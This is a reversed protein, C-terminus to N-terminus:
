EGADYGSCSSGDGVGGVFIACDELSAEGGQCRIDSAQFPLAGSTGPGAPTQWGWSGTFSMAGMWPFGLQRCVVQANPISWYTHGVGLWQGCIAGWGGRSGQQIYIEVFGYAGWTNNGGTLRLSGSPIQPQPPTSPTNAPSPSPLTNSAACIVGTCM